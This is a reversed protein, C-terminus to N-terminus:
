LARCSQFLFLSFNDFLGSIHLAAAVVLLALATIVRSVHLRGVVWGTFLLYLAVGGWASATATPLALYLFLVLLFANLCKYQEGSNILDLRRLILLVAVGRHLGMFFGGLKFVQLLVFASFTLAAAAGPMDVLILCSAGLAWTCLLTGNFFSDGIASLTNAMIDKIKELVAPDMRGDAIEKEARLFVGLLMPTLFPHCNFSGAYRLRAERLRDGPGYIAALAPELAFLLGINQLGRPNYAATLFYSRLFCGLLLSARSKKM